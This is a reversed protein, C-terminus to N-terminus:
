EDGLIKYHWQCAQEKFVRLMSTRLKTVLKRTPLPVIKRWYVQKSEFNMSEIKLLGELDRQVSDIYGQQQNLLDSAKKEIKDFIESQALIGRADQPSDM